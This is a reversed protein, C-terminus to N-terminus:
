GDPEEFCLSVVSQEAEAFTAPLTCGLVLLVRINPLMDPDAFVVAQVVYQVM